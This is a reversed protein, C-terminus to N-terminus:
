PAQLTQQECLSSWVCESLLTSAGGFYIPLM